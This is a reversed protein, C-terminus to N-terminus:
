KVIIKRALIQNGGEDQVTVVYMGSPLGKLEIKHETNRANVQLTQKQTTIGASNFIEVTVSGKLKKDALKVNVFGENVFTPYLDVGTFTNTSSRQDNLLYRSALDYIHLNEASVISKATLTKIDVEYYGLGKASALIVKGEANVAAGNLSFNEPLSSIKGMFEATRTQTAVRFVNGSASFVYLDGNADAVMDGGFGSQMIEISNNGNKAADKIAGLDSVQYSSGTKVIKILQSGSNTMAYINGDAGLTMRTFHSNLDCSTTKVVSSEILTVKKTELDLAYINSSYLPMYILESGSADIALTAMAPSQAHNFTRKDETITMKKTDSYVVPVSNVDFIAKGSTGKAFDVPRFDNFVISPTNKGTLAFIDQAGATTGIFLAAIPLLFKKM